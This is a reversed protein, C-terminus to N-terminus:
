RRGRCFPLTMGLAAWAALKPSHKIDLSPEIDITQMSEIWVRMTVSHTAPDFVCM